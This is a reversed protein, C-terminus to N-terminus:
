KHGPAKSMDMYLINWRHGDPDTFGAGYMWGDQEGPKGYIAGGAEIAKKALEDVEERSEADISFLVSAGQEPDPIAQNTFNQFAAESFLMLVVEKEGVFFSAANDSDPHQPNPTFGLKNYFAKSKTLDKVPLNIWISKTM